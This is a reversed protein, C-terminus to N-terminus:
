ELSEGIAVEPIGTLALLQLPGRKTEEGLGLNRKTVSNNGFSVIRGTLAM